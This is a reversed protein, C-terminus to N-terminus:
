KFHAPQEVAKSYERFFDKDANEGYPKLLEQIRTYTDKYVKNNQTRELIKRLRIYTYLDKEPIEM